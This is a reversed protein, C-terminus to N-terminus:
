CDVRRRMRRGLALLAPLSILGMALSTPEPVATIFTTGQFGVTTSGTGLTIVSTNTLTFPPGSSLSLPNVQDPLPPSLNGSTPVFNMIGSAVTTTADDYQGQFTRSDNVANGFTSSASNTMVKPNTAPFTYGDDTVIIQLTHNGATATSKLQLSGGQFLRALDDSGPTGAFVGVSNTTASLSNIQFAQLAANVAAIDIAITGLDSPTTNLGGSTIPGFLDNGDEIITMTFAANASPAQFAAIALVALAPAIWKKTAQLM